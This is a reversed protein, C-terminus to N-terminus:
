KSIEFINPVISESQLFLDTWYVFKSILFLVIYGIQVMFRLIFCANRNIFVCDASQCLFSYVTYSKCGQLSLSKNHKDKIDIIVPKMCWHQLFHQQHRTKVCYSVSFVSNVAQLLYVVIFTRINYNNVFTQTKDIAQIYYFIYTNHLGFDPDNNQGSSFCIQFYIKIGFFSRNEKEWFVPKGGFVQWM